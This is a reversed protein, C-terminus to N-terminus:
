KGKLIALKVKEIIENIPHESKVFYDVAGLKLGKKISEDDGLNSTIIVPINKLSDDGKIEKLVEFGDKKPLMLDLLIASPKWSKIDALAEEGDVSIKVDFKAKELKEKLVKALIEEDEVILIKM